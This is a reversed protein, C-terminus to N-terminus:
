TPGPVFTVCAFPFSSFLSPHLVLKRVLIPLDELEVLFRGDICHQFELERYAEFGEDFAIEVLDAADGTFGADDHGGALGDTAAEGGGCGGVEAEEGARWDATGHNIRIRSPHPGNRRLTLPIPNLPPQRQPLTILPQRRHRPRTSTM